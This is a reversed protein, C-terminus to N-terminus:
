LACCAPWACLLLPAGCLMAHGMFGEAKGAGLVSAFEDEEPRERGGAAAMGPSTAALSAAPPQQDGGHGAQLYDAEMADGGDSGPSAGEQAQRAAAGLQSLPLRALRRLGVASSPPPATGVTAPSFVPNFPAPSPSFLGAVQFLPNDAPRRRLSLLSHPLLPSPAQVSAAAPHCTESM